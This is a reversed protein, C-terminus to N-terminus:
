PDMHYGRTLELMAKAMRTPTKIIGDRAPDEGVAQSALFLACCSKSAPQFPPAPFASSVHSSAFAVTCGSAYSAMPRSCNTLKMPTDHIM